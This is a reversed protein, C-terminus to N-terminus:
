GKANDLAVVVGLQFVVLNTESEIPRFWISGDSAEHISGERLYRVQGNHMYQTSFALSVRRSLRVWLGGGSALAFTFDDFNTTSAFEEFDSTGSVGSETYFYSFGLGVHLYPRLLGTGLTLQPGVFATIIQNDTTVDVWVRQITPSLPQQVTERGYILYSGDLRLGWHSRRDLDLLFFGGFGVSANVYNAFEGQPVGVQLGGGLAAFPDFDISEQGRAEAALLAATLTLVCATTSARKCHM